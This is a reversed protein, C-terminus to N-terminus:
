VLDPLKVQQLLGLDLETKLLFDMLIRKVYVPISVLDFSSAQHYMMGPFDKFIPYGM